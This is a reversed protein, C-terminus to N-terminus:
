EGKESSVNAGDHALHQTTVSLPGTAKNRHLLPEHHAIRNRLRHLRGVPKDVAQRVTGPKFANYLYPIWLPYHHAATSLYRWFGFNLEAIVKGPAAGPGAERVAREIQQRPAQNADVRTGDRITAGVISSKGAGNVGALVRIQPTMTTKRVM